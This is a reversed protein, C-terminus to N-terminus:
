CDVSIVLHHGAGSYLQWGQTPETTLRALRWFKLKLTSVVKRLPAHCTQEVSTFRILCDHPTALATCFVRQTSCYAQEWDPSGGAHVADNCTLCM